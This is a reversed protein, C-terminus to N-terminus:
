GYYSQQRKCNVFPVRKYITEDIVFSTDSQLIFHQVIGYVLILHGILTGDRTNLSIIGNIIKSQTFIKDCVNSMSGIPNKNLVLFLDDYRLYRNMNYAVTSTLTIFNYPQHISPHEPDYLEM